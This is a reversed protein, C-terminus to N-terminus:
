ECVGRAVKLRRLFAAVKVRQWGRLYPVIQRQV